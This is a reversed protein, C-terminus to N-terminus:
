KSKMLPKQNNQQQTCKSVRFSSDRMTPIKRACSVVDFFHLFDIRPEDNVVRSLIEKIQTAIEHVKTAKENIGMTQEDINMSMKHNPIAIEDIEIAIENTTISIDNIKM